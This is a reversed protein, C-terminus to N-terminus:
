RYTSVAAAAAAASAETNCGRPDEEKAHKNSSCLRGAQFRVYEQSVQEPNKCLTNSLMLILQEFHPFLHMDLRVVHEAKKSEAHEVSLWLMLCVSIQM